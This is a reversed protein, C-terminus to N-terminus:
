VSEHRIVWLTERKPSRGRRETLSKRGVVVSHAKAEFFCWCVFKDLETTEEDMEVCVGKGIVKESLAAIVRGKHEFAERFESVKVAEEVGM